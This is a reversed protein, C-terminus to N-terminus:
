SYSYYSYSHYSAIAMALAHVDEVRAPVHVIVTPGEGLAGQGDSPWGVALTRWRARSVTVLIIVIVTIMITLLLLLQQQQQQMIMIIMIVYMMRWAGLSVAAHSFSKGQPYSPRLSYVALVNWFMVSPVQISCPRRKLQKQLRLALM